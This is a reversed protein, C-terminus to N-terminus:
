WLLGGLMVFCGALTAYLYWRVRGNQTLVLLQNISLNLWAVFRYPSELIDAKNVRAVCGLPQVLLKNYLWDFGLGDQLWQHLRHPIAGGSRSFQCWVLLLGLLTVAVPLWQLYWALHGAQGATFVRGFDPAIWGGALSLLALVWLPLVWQSAASYEQPQYSHNPQGLCVMFLLRFSYLSTLLVGFLAICWLLPGATDAQWTAALIAEKSFFGATGPMGVLALLGILLFASTLPLKRFIGGMKRMDQQHHLKLIITGATLFLLAKFFAHTMLHFIASDYAMAGLGLFMYGIQSMTSYALVRKIDTQVLASLGALVLTLAGVWAILTLIQPEFLPHMRAVLYVGATVMTAAHILASVPTPGAMADPLWTQLPLQASKGVAGGLLLLGIWWLTNENISLDSHLIAPISLSGFEAFLMLLAIMLATDGVRTVVFAKKAAKVNEAQKQWFGILLFSCLGVGEWGLYLLVLNDSLVLMLMAFVFLNMYVFFRQVDKDRAMYSAAYWHIPWGVGTVVAMMLMSLQDLYLSVNIPATTLPLWNFLLVRVPEAGAQYFEWGVLATLLAALTLCGVGLLIVILRPLIAYLAVLLLASILPLLPILYLWELM